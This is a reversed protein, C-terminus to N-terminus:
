PKPPVIFSFAEFLNRVLAALTEVEERTARKRHPLASVMEWSGEISKRLGELYEESRGAFYYTAVLRLKEKANDGQPEPRGKSMTSSYLENALGIVANKFITGVGALAAAEEAAGLEREALLLADYSSFRSAAALFGFRRLESHAMALYQAMLAPALPQSEYVRIVLRSRGGPLPDVRVGGVTLVANGPALEYALIMNVPLGNRTPRDKEARFQHSPTRLDEAAQILVPKVEEPRGDLIWDGPNEIVEETM